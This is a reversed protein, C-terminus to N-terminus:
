AECATRVKRLIVSEEILGLSTITRKFEEFVRGAFPASPFLCGMPPVHKLAASAAAVAGLGTAWSMASFGATPKVEIVVRFGADPGNADAVLLVVDDSGDLPRVAAEKASVNCKTLAFPVFGPWRVTRQRLTSLSALSPEALTEEMLADDYTDLVGIGEFFVYESTAFRPAERREGNVRAISRRNLFATASAFNMQHWAPGKPRRPIGGCYTVISTPTDMERCITQILAETLGPELGVGFHITRRQFDTPNVAKPLGLVCLQIEENLSQNLPVLLPMAQEHSLAFIIIGPSSASKGFFAEVATKLADDGVSVTLKDELCAFQASFPRLARDFLQTDYGGMRELLVAIAAGVRGSGVVAVRPLVATM